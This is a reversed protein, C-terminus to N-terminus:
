TLALVADRFTSKNTEMYFDIADGHRSCGYCTWRNKRTNIVFSPTKERHFPCLGKRVTGRTLKGVYLDAIPHEKARLIQDTTVSTGTANPFDRARIRATVAKLTRVRSGFQHEITQQLVMRWLQAEFSEDTRMLGAHEEEFCVLDEVLNEEMASSIEDLNEAFLDLADHLRLTEM